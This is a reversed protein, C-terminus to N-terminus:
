VPKTILGVTTVGVQHLIHLMQIIENYSIKKNGAILFITKPNALLHAKAEAAIQAPLLLTRRHQNVILSYQGTGSVEIIIPIKDNNSLIKDNVADPLNVMINQTIIPITAMFILLLILLVDLLPVINIDSKVERQLRRTIITM